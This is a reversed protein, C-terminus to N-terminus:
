YKHQEDHFILIHMFCGFTCYSHHFLNPEQKYLYKPKYDSIQKMVGLGCSCMKTYYWSQKGSVNEVGEKM